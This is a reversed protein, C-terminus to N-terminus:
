CSIVVNNNDGICWASCRRNSHRIDDVGLSLTGSALNKIIESAGDDAYLTAEYPNLRYNLQSQRLLSFLHVMPKRRRKKGETIPAYYLKDLGITAM